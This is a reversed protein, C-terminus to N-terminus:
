GKIKSLSSERPQCFKHRKTWTCPSLSQTLTAGQHVVTGLVIAKSQGDGLHRGRAQGIQVRRWFPRGGRGSGGRRLACCAGAAGGEGAGGLDSAARDTAAIERWQSFHLSPGDGRRRDSALVESAGTVAVAAAEGQSARLSTARSAGRTPPRPRPAASGGLLLRARLASSGCLLAARAASAGARLAMGQPSSQSLWGSPITCPKKPSHRTALLAPLPASNAPGPRGRPRVRSPPRPSDSGLARTAGPRTASCFGGDRAM